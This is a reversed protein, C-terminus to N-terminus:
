TTAQQSTEQIRWAANVVMWVQKVDEGLKGVVDAVTQVEGHSAAGYVVKDVISETEQGIGKVQIAAARGETPQPIRVVERPYHCYVTHRGIDYEPVGEEVTLEKVGRYVAWKNDTRTKWGKTVVIGHCWARDGKARGQELYTQVLVLYWVRDALLGHVTLRIRRAGEACKHGVPVIPAEEEPPGTDTLRFSMALGDDEERLGRGTNSGMRVGTTKGQQEEGWWVEM